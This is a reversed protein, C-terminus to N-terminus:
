FGNIISDPKISNLARKFVLPFTPKNIVDNNTEFKWAHAEKRWHANLPGFISVDCPQTM